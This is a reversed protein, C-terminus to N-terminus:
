LGKVTLMGGSVTIIGDNMLRTTLKAIQAIATEYIERARAETDLSTMVIKLTREDVIDVTYDNDELDRTLLVAFDNHHYCAITHVRLSDITHAACVQDSM